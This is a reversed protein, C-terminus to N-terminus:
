KIDLSAAATLGVGFWGYYYYAVAALALHYLLRLPRMELTIRYGRAITM